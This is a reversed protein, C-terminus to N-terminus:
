KDKLDTKEIGLLYAKAKLQENDNELKGNEEQRYTSDQQHVEKNKVSKLNSHIPEMEVKWNITVHKKCSKKFQVHLHGIKRRCVSEESCFFTDYRLFCIHQKILMHCQITHTENICKSTCQDFIALYM